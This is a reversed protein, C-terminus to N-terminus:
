PLKDADLLINARGEQLVMRGVSDPNTELM